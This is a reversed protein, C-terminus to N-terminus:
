PQTSLPFTEWNIANTSTNVSLWNVGSIVERTLESWNISSASPNANNVTNGYIVISDTAKRPNTVKPLGTVDALAITSVFGLLFAIVYFKKFM